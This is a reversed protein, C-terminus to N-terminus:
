EDRSVDPHDDPEQLRKLALGYILAEVLRFDDPPLQNIRAILLKVEPRTEEMDPFILGIIISMDTGTGAALKFLFDLGPQAKGNLINTVQTHSVDCMEAFARISMGRKTREEEIFKILSAFM